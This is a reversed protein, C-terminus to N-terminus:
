NEPFIKKEDGNNRAHNRWIIKVLTGEKMVEKLDSLLQRVVDLELGDKTYFDSLCFLRRVPEYGDPRNSYLLASMSDPIAEVMFSLNSPNIGTGCTFFKRVPCPFASLPLTRGEAETLTDKFLVAVQASPAM